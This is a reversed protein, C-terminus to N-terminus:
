SFLGSRGAISVNLVSISIKRSATRNETIRTVITRKPNLDLRLMPWPTSNLFGSANVCTWFVVRVRIIAMITMTSIKGRSLSKMGPFSTILIIAPLTSTPSTAMMKATIASSIFSAGCFSAMALIGQFVMMIIAPAPMSIATATSAPVM